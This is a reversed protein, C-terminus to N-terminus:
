TESHKKRKKRHQLVNGSPLKRAHSSRFTALCRAEAHHRPVMPMKASRLPSPIVAVGPGFPMSSKGDIV